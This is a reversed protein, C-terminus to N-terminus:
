NKRSFYRYLNYISLTGARSQMLCELSCLPGGLAALGAFRHCAQQSQTLAGEPAKTM